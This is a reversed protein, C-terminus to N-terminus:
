LWIDTSRCPSSLSKNLRACGWVSLRLPPVSCASRGVQIISMGVVIQHCRSATTNEAIGTVSLANDKSVLHMGLCETSESDAALEIERCVLVPRCANFLENSRELYEKYGDFNPIVCIKMQTCLAFVRPSGGLSTSV